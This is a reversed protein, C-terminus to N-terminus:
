RGPCKYKFIEIEERYKDHGYRAFLIQKSSQVAAWHTARNVANEKYETKPFSVKTGLPLHSLFFAPQQWPLTRLLSASKLSPINHIDYTNIPQLHKCLNHTRM